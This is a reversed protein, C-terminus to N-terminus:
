QNRITSNPACCLNPRYSTTAGRRYLGARTRRRWLVVRELPGGIVETGLRPQFRQFFDGSQQLRFDIRCSEVSTERLLFPASVQTTRSDLQLGNLLAELSGAYRRSGAGVVPPTGKSEKRIRPCTSPRHPVLSDSLDWAREM